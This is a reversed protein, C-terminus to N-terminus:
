SPLPDVIVANTDTFSLVWAAGKATAYERPSGGTLEALLPAILKGQSCVVSPGPQASLATLRRAASVPDAAEDFTHDVTVAQGLRQALPTLTQICRLPAASVLRAPAFCRLPAVLSDARARGDTDLPRESDPGTWTDPDGALAHRVLVVPDRVPPLQAYATLVTIDRQYTVREIAAELDLWALADTEDGAVFEAGAGAGPDDLVRMSWYDVVKDALGSKVPVQYAVTPLRAIVRAPVGTEEFVERCAAAVPHEGRHLKGKPLSWDNHRPRHVVAIRLGGARTAALVGGAARIPRAGNLADV